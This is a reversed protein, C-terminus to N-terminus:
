GRSREYLEEAAKLAAPTDTGGAILALQRITETRDLLDAQTSTSDSGSSKSILYHRDGYAAVPALHTVAFVQCTGALTHMKQGIASAVAGSVGTDIEDFIVTGIGQLHTFITKLGLMLRSLEGGSATRSLPKLDEGKNMSILFEVRDIGRANASQGSIETHFRANPLALDRLHGTIEEDLRSSGAKRTDSLKQAVAQYEKYAKDRKRGIEELYEARNEISRIRNEIEDRRELIQAITNGYKRKLRQILFLRSQIDNIDDESYEFSDLIRRLSSIGDNMSYYGDSIETRIESFTDSEELSQVQHVLDYLDSDVGDFLSVIQAIRDASAKIMKFHKEKELLEEDEGERLDAQDIEDRQYNLFELDNENYTENNATDYESRLQDYIRYKEETSRVLEDNGLYQDLLRIHESTNLLYQTDRQGHIDIENRLLDKVLSFTVVRHNLRCTSKGAKTIERTITIDDDTPFGAEELVHLAHPSGSLDFTGEVIAKDGHRGVSSSSARDAYLLSIADILISKGAGTEGIFVSFGNDFDLTIEDILIYNEIYLHKIM